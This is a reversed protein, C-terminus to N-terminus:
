VLVNLTILCLAWKKHWYIWHTSQKHPSLRDANTQCTVEDLEIKTNGLFRFEWICHHLKSETLVLAIFPSLSSVAATTSTYPYSETLHRLDCVDCAWVHVCFAKNFAKMVSDCSIFIRMKICSAKHGERLGQTTSVESDRVWETCGRVM